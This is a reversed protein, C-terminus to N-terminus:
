IHKSFNSVLGSTSPTYLTFKTKPNVKFDIKPLQKDADPIYRYQNAGTSHHCNRNTDVCLGPVRRSQGSARVCM